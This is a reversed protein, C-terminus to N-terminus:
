LIPLPNPDSRMIKVLKNKRSLLKEKNSEPTSIDTPKMESPRRGVQVTRSTTM